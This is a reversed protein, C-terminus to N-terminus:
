TKKLLVSVITGKGVESKISLEGNHLKFVTQSLALGVGSGSFTRANEARYFTQFIYSLDKEPIGIGSDSITVNISGPEYLLNISVNKNDSFKIANELLNKFALMLLNKNGMILLDDSNAPMNEFGLDMKSEPLQAQVINKLDELLEDIRLCEMKINSVDSSALAINLLGDSLNHLREAEELVTKLVMKYEDASRQRSLSVEINGIISTLPTRLEHSASAVFKQQLEFTKGLRELMNNFTIALEALEDKGNGESLRLKLNTDTINNVHNIIENIPKLMKSTFFRGIFYLIFISLLFGIILVNKLHSLKADGSQDRASALIVFDGQNDPYFIGFTYIGNTKNKYSKEKRTKEIVSVPFSSQISDIIFAPHNNLDYIKIIEGPLKEFLKTQFEKFIKNSVEDEELFVNAAAYTRERLKYFFDSSAYSKSISYIYLNLAILLLAIVFAFLLSLKTKIKM